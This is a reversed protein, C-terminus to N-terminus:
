PGRSTVPRRYAETALRDIISAACPRAASPTEPRCSFVRRRTPTDSVGRVLLPGKVTFERLHPVQAFGYATANSTSSLSYKLPSILEQSVRQFGPPIFAAAIRHPGATIRVAETSMGVGNPDSATMFRDINLLAAREGDVSIEIQEGRALGGAFAGTTEHFFSVDFRYDGDAPFNHVVSMGGRTGFPTGEVHATQSALKPMTYTHAASSANANGLALWSIESAARLYGDLLTPSLMQVDAINDFNDSKTDPPLYAGADVELGLLARVSARSEARNLRQFTRSGPNPNIAAASDLQHELSAVLAAVTDSSPRAAGSPPMMGLRLKAVMKESVDARTSAAGVDFTALSLNGRRMTANHCRGCYQKVVGNLEDTSLRAPRMSASHPTARPMTGLPYREATTEATAADHRWPSLQRGGPSTAEALRETALVAAGSLVSLALLLRM